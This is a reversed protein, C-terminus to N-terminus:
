ISLRKIDKIIKEKSEYMWDYIGCVMKFAKYAFNIRLVKYVTFKDYDKSLHLIKSQKIKLGTMEEFFYKYAAVQMSYSIADVSNSTKWDILTLEEDLFCLFDLQGASYKDNGVLLETAIPIINKSKVWNEVSRMSAIAQAKDDPKAFAKIDIPLVGTATWENIYREIANHAQTGIGGASDRIDTHALQAGSVMEERTHENRLKELRDEILLWECGMKVAWKILHPKAIVGGIKTTVSKQMFGTLLNAYKHGYTDHRAEWVGTVKEQIIKQVQEKTM